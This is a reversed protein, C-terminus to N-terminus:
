RPELTVLSRAAEALSRADLRERARLYAESGSAPSFTREVGCPRMRCRLGNQAAAEAVLSALGGTVYAEEVTVIWSFEALLDLIEASAKFPVHALVAVAASLGDRELLAAAGLAEHVISGCALFLADRGTRVIEPRGFAFRGELGSM